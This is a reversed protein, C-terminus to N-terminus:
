HNIFLDFIYYVCVVWGIFLNRLRLWFQLRNWPFPQNWVEPDLWKERSHFIILSIINGIWVGFCAGGVAMDENSNPLSLCIIVGLVASLFGIISIPLGYLIQFKQTKQWNWLVQSFYLGLTFLHIFTLSALACDIKSTLSHSSELYIDYLLFPLAGIFFALVHAVPLDLVWYKWCCTFPSEALGPEQAPEETKTQPKALNFGSLKEKLEDIREKMTSPWAPAAKPQGTPVAAPQTGLGQTMAKVLERCSNFRDERQKALGRMIAANLEPREGAIPDPMDLLVCDRLMQTDAVHFPLRGSFLWYAVAALAYQDTRGDQSQGRWQEPPMFARTGSTHVATGTHLSMSNQVEASIGFDVLFAERVDKGDMQLFINSPKVDRHVVGHEHAYDLAAAVKELVMMKQERTLQVADLSVGELWKMVVFYGLKPDKELGYVPRINQHNLDQITRFALRIQEMATDFHRIEQPVFKLAVYRESITDYAKWVVGMGGRGAEKELRYKGDCLTMQPALSKLEADDEPLDDITKDSDLSYNENM